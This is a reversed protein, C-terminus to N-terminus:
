RTDHVQLKFYRKSVGLWSHPHKKESDMCKKKKKKYRDMHTLMILIHKDLRLINRNGNYIMHKM